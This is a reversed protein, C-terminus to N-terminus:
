NLLGSILNVYQKVVSKKSYEKEIIHLGNRGLLDLVSRDEIINKLVEELQILKNEVGSEILYACDNPELFNYLPTNKGSIVLLPKECAMITYVKSPFGEKEMAPNMFIFHIDAYAILYPMHQRSQYPLIHINTLGRTEAESILAAKMVGEGIVWFEVPRGKLREAISLLPEWDQAYGINGAYMVKIVDKEPFVTSDLHGRACVRRYVETDVFNPIIVLKSPNKFRSVITNYFIVDITTVADSYNYVVRELVKLSKIVAGSKLSGQNILFDPYIEQVNYIVKAGKLRALALSLLGITLPPSPSLIICINREFLGLIFSLIHWYIFGAIRLPTSTFKKQPVHYVEIGNFDSKYYLGKLCKKLPQKSIDEQVINYHPTTTLVVVEYGSEKLGLAIDNYLYATSVGDPSFAISHILVKKKVM